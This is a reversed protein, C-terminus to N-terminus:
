TGTIWDWDGYQENMFQARMSNNKGNKGVGLTNSTRDLRQWLISGVNQINDGLVDCLKQAGCSNFTPRDSAM